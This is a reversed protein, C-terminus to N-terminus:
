MLNNDNDDNDNFISKIKEIWPENKDDLRAHLVNSMSEWTEFKCEPAKYIHTRRIYKFDHKILEYVKDSKPINDLINKMVIFPNRPKKSIIKKLEKKIPKIKIDDQINNKNKNPM